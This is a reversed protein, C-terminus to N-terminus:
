GVENRSCAACLVMCQARTFPNAVVLKGTALSSETGCVFCPAHNAPGFEDAVLGINGVASPRMNEVWPRSVKECTEAEVPPKLLWEKCADIYERLKSSAVSPGSLDAAQWDVNKKVM